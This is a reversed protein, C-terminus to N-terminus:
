LNIKNTLSDVLPIKITFETGKGVMSDVEITGKHTNIIHKVIYLGLGTSVEGATGERGATTYKEFLNKIMAPEIGIGTDKIALIAHENEIMTKVIIMGQPKTFKIANICLNDIARKLKDINLYCYLPKYHLNFILDINKQKAMMLLNDECEKVANNLDHKSLQFSDSEHELKNISLIDKVLYLAKESAREILKIYKNNDFANHKENIM